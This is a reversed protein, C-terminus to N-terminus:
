KPVGRPQHQKQARLVRRGEMFLWCFGGLVIMMLSYIILRAIATISDKRRM